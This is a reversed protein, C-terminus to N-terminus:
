PRDALPGAKLMTARSQTLERMTAATVAGWVLHAAIMLANRRPPHSNAPRLIGAAPIWGFYSVAWLGAGLAAGAATGPRPRIAAILAAALAGYAFHAVTAADKVAEDSRGPFITETIERPPLPYREAPPLQQHLRSMAATAAATGALGAFAGVILRSRTPLTEPSDNMVRDVCARM